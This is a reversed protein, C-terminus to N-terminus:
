DAGQPVQLSGPLRRELLAMEAADGQGPMWRAYVDLFIKLDHGMQGACFGPKMGAMLMKTAYTHRTTYPQRYRVGAAKLAPVWYSRRFAREDAWPQGYRPDLWVTACAEPVAQRQELLCQLSVSNLMVTRVSNTKTGKRVGRVVSESVQLLRQDFSVSRWALAITEGTRLGSWFRFRTYRAAADSLKAMAAVIADEEAETFPDPPPTQHAQAPVAAAPNQQLVGDAVALAMAQNLVSVYNNATKGSIDSEALVQLIKSLRLRRLPEDGCGAKWFRIASDYAKRTSVALRQGTVWTDLQTAVTLGQGVTGDEPFYEAVAFTGHRIKERIEAALRQAFRINATTPPMPRGDIKLTQKHKVGADSFHIRISNERVEVGRENGM